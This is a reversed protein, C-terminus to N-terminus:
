QGHRSTAPCVAASGSRPSPRPRSFSLATILYPCVYFFPQRNGGQQVPVLSTWCPRDEDQSLVSALEPITPARFLASLPPRRGTLAEVRAFLRVGLLSHGGLDFFNDHRNITTVGLVDQWLHALQTELGPRPPDSPPTPASSTDPKPLRARDIKHSPTFPLAPLTLYTAPVM